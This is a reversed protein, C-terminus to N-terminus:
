ETNNGHEDELHYNIPIEAARDRLYHYQATHGDHLVCTKRLYELLRDLRMGDHQAEGLVDAHAHLRCIARWSWHDIITRVQRNEDDKYALDLDSQTPALELLATLGRSKVCQHRGRFARAYEIWWLAYQNTTGDTKEHRRAEDLLHWPTLGGGDRGKKASMTMEEVVGWKAIYSAAAHGGQIKIGHEMTPAALGTGVAARKWLAALETAWATMDAPTLPHATFAITHYHPHWGNGGHTVELTRITGVVGFRKNMAKYARWSTMRSRAKALRPLLFDLRQNAHHRITATIFTMGYGARGAAAAAEQFENKRHESIKASCIACRWVDGCRQVGGYWTRGHTPVSRWISVSDGQGCVAHHCNALRTDGILKKARYLRQWKLGATLSHGKQRGRYTKSELSTAPLRTIEVLPRRAAHNRSTATATNAKTRM